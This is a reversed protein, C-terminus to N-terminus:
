QKSKKRLTGEKACCVFYCIDVGVTKEGGWKQSTALTSIM